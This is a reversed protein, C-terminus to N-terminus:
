PHGRILVARSGPPFEVLSIKGLIAVSPGLFSVTMDNSLCDIGYHVIILYNDLFLVALLWCPAFV